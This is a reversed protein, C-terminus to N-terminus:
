LQAVDPKMGETFLLGDREALTRVPKFGEARLAAEAGGQTRYHPDLSRTSFLAGLGGRPATEIVYCRGGVRLVQQAGQLAGVREHPRLTGILEPIVVVDFWGQAFPPTRFPAVKVDVLVGCAEAARTITEAAADDTVLAAAQGSLGVNAALLAILRPDNHGVQLVRDGMRLGIISVRLDTEGKLKKFIAM